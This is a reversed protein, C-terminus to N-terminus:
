DSIKQLKIFHNHFTFLVATRTDGNFLIISLRSKIKIQFFFDDFIVIKQSASELSNFPKVNDNNCRIIDYGVQGSIDNMTEIM